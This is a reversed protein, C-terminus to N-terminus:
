RRKSYTVKGDPSIIREFQASPQPPSRDPNPPQVAVAPPPASLVVEGGQPSADVDAGRAAAEGLAPGLAQLRE